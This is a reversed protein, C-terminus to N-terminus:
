EEEEIISEFRVRELLRLGTYKGIIINLGAVGLLTLEPYLLVFQQVSELSILLSCLVAVLLTEFTISMAEKQSSFLQTSMFNETLIMIILLPFISISLLVSADIWSVLILLGLILFTVVWLLMATRPLLPLKFRKVVSRAVSASLLVAFFIMIGTIIGTSVFAVSLVAPIYVGFGKLGVIHRGIAIISAILPFLLMLVIINAPLGNLIARRITHQLPNHWTLKGIPHEDLYAALKSKQSGGTETIDLDKKEQIKQDVEASSSALKGTDSAEVPSSAELVEELPELTLAQTKVASIGWLSLMLILILGIKKM